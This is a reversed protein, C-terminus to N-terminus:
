GWLGLARWYPLGVGIWIGVHLVSMLFGLRWWSVLDVYGSEFYIPSPGAAYHTIAGDLSSFCGLLLTAAVPPAGAAIAVALFAPFVATVQATMSAFFYHVYLYAVALLVLAALPMWGTVVSSVRSVFWAIVGQEALQSAMMVLGGFWILADWASTEAVVDEWTIVGSLLLCSLGALAVTTVSLGHLSSSAWLALMALFVLGLVVETRTIPGMRGLEDAAIDAAEPTRKVQPPYIRYLVLPVLALSLFGPLMAAIAWQGWGIRVGATELALAVVLPNAAMSTMFMASTVMDCQYASAMLFAGIKRSTKGPESGFARALSRVIPYLIGGARATNSPMAPAIALDALAVAYALGLTRRGFARILLFGIRRGLGTILFCRAILFAVVILWVTGNAYGSLAATYPVVGLVCLAAVGLIVMAGMPLPRVILGVITAIFVALLTWAHGTLDPPAPVLWISLPVALVVAGRWLRSTAGVQPTPSIRPMSRIEPAGTTGAGRPAM